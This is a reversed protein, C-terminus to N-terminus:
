ELRTVLENCLGSGVCCIVCVRSFSGHVWCSDCGLNWCDLLHVGIGYVMSGGPNVIIITICFASLSGWPTPLMVTHTHTHAHTYMHVPVHLHRVVVM